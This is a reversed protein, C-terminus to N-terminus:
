RARYNGPAELFSGRTGITITVIKLGRREEERIPDTKAEIFWDGQNRIRLFKLRLFELNPIQFETFCGQQEGM